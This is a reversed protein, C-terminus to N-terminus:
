LQSCIYDIEQQTINNSPGCFTENSELIITFSPLEYEGQIRIVSILKYNECVKNLASELASTAVKLDRVIIM